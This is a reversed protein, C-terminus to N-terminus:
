ILSGNGPKPLELWTQGPTLKLVEVRPDDAAAFLGEVPSDGAFIHVQGGAALPVFLSTLTLDFALSSYLAFGAAGEYRTAAWEVHFFQDGLSTDEHGLTKGVPAAEDWDAGTENWEARATRGDLAVTGVVMTCCAIAMTVMRLM